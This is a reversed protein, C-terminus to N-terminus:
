SFSSRAPRVAALAPEIFGPEPGRAMSSALCIVRFCSGIVARADADAQCQVHGRERDPSQTRAPIDALGIRMAQVGPHGWATGVVPQLPARFEALEARVLASKGSRSPFRAGAGGDEVLRRM